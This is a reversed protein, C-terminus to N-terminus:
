RLWNERAGLEPDAAAARAAEWAQALSVDPNGDLYRDAFRMWGVRHDRLFSMLPRLATLQSVTTKRTLGPHAASRGLHYAVLPTLLRWPLGPEADRLRLAHVRDGSQYTPYPVRLLVDRPILYSHFYSTSRETGSRANDIADFWTGYLSRDPNLMRMGYIGPQKIDAEVLRRDWNAALLMDDDMDVIWPHSAAEVGLQFPKFFLEGGVPADVVRVRHRHRGDYRGVLVIEAEAIGQSFIGPLVVEDLLARRGGITAIVFSVAIM